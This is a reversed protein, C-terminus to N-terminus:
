TPVTPPTSRRRCPSSTSIPPPSSAQSRERLQLTPHAQSRVPEVERTRDCARACSTSAGHSRHRLRDGAVGSRAFAVAVPLGVYGLGIVAIKRGHAVSIERGARRPCQKGVPAAARCYLSNPRAASRLARRDAHGIRASSFEQEVMRRGAIGFGAACVPDRALVTSRTPSRQPITRRCSCRMSTRRPRDRSLGSRRHRRDPPRLRRSRAPEQAPGRTAVAAGRYARGGLRRPYRRCPRAHGRGSAAEM